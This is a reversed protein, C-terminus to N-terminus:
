LFCFSCPPLQLWVQSCYQWLYCQVYGCRPMQHIKAQGSMYIIAMLGISIASNLACTAYVFTRRDVALNCNTPNRKTPSRKTPNRKFLFDWLPELHLPRRTHSM